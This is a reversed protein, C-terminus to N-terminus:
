KACSEERARRQALAEPLLADPDIADIEDRAQDLFAAIKGFAESAFFAASVEDPLKAIGEYVHRGFHLLSGRLLVGLGRHERSALNTVRYIAILRDIVDTKNRVPASLMPSLAAHLTLIGESLTQRFTAGTLPSKRAGACLAEVVRRKKPGPEGFSFSESRAPITGAIRAGDNLNWIRAEPFHAIENELWRRAEFLTITTRVIGGFNGEVERNLDASEREAAAIQETYVPPADGTGAYYFSAQAHHRAADKAGLDVGVLAIKRVGQRLLWSLAGNSVTPYTQVRLHDEPFIDGACDGVKLFLLSERAGELTEPHLVTPGIIRLKARFEPSITYALTQATLWPREIEVHFDPVIGLRELASIASGCSVILASEQHQRLFDALGDLSPGSAVVIAHTKAAMARAEPDHRFLRRGARLNAITHRLSIYEDDFFGWGKYLLPGEKALVHNIRESHEADHLGYFCSAGHLFYAPISADADMVRRLQNMLPEATGDVVLSLNTPQGILYDNYLAVYDTLFTSLRTIAADSDIVIIQRVTYRELLRSLHIGYASGYVILLPILTPGFDPAKPVSSEDEETDEQRQRAATRYHDLLEWLIKVTETHGHTYYYNSFFDELTDVQIKKKEETEEEGVIRRRAPSIFIFMGQDVIKRLDQQTLRQGAIEVSLQMNEDVDLGVAVQGNKPDALIEHLHPLNQRFFEMNALHTAQMKQLYRQTAESM